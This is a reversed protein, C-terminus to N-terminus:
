CKPFALWIRALLAFTNSEAKRATSFAQSENRGPDDVDASEVVDVKTVLSMTVHQETAM